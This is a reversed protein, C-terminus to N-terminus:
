VLAIKVNNAGWDTFIKESVQRFIIEPFLAKLNNTKESYNNQKVPKRNSREM